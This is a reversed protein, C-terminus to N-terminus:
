RFSEFTSASPPESLTPMLRRSHKNRQMDGAAASLLEETTEGDDPFSSVGISLGVHATRGTRVRFKHSEVARRVREAVGNAMAASAMPMIAVFEDGAYRALTDM